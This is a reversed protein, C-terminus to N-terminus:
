KNIATEKIIGNDELRKCIYGIVYVSATTIELDQNEELNLIADEVARWLVTEEYKSYPNDQIQEKVTMIFCSLVLRM